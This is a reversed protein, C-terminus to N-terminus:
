FAPHSLHYRRFNGSLVGEIVNLLVVISIFVIGRIVLVLSRLSLILVVPFVLVVGSITPFLENLESEMVTAFPLLV